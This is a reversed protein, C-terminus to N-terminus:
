TVQGAVVFRGDVANTRREGNTRQKKASAAHRVLAAGLKGACLGGMGCPHCRGRQGATRDKTADPPTKGGRAAAIVNGVDSGSAALNSGSESLARARARHRPAIM